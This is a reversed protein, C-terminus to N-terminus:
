VYTEIVFLYPCVCTQVLFDPRYFSFITDHVQSFGLLGDIPRHKIMSDEIYKITEDFKTYM